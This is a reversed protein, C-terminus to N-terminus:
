SVKGPPPKETEFKVRQKVKANSTQLSDFGACVLPARSRRALSTMGILVSLHSGSVCTFAETGMGKGSQTGNINIGVSASALFRPEGLLLVKLLDGGLESKIWLDPSRLKWFEIKGGAEHSISVFDCIGSAGLVKLCFAM